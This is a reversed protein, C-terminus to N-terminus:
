DEMEDGVRAANSQVMKTPPAVDRDYHESLHDAVVEGVDMSVAEALEGDHRSDIVFQWGITRKYKRLDMLCVSCIQENDGVPLYEVHEQTKEPPTKCWLCGNTVPELMADEADWSEGQNATQWCEGCINPEADTVFEDSIEDGCRQCETM